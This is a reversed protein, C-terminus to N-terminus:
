LWFLWWDLTGDANKEIRFLKHAFGFSWTDDKENSSTTIFPFIFRTKSGDKYKNYRYFFGLFGFTETDNTVNVTQDFLLGWLANHKYSGDRQGHWQYPIGFLVYRDDSYHDHSLTAQETDVNERSWVRNDEFERYYLIGLVLRDEIRTRERRSRMHYCPENTEVKCVSCEDDKYSIADHYYTLDKDEDYTRRYLLSWM